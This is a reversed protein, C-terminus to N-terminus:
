GQQQQKAAATEAASAAAAPGAALIAAAFPLVNGENGMYEEQFARKPIGVRMRKKGDFQRYRRGSFTHM